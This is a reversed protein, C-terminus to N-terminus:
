RRLLLAGLVLVGIGIGGYLLWNPKKEATDPPPTFVKATGGGQTADYAAGYASPAMPDIHSANARAGESLTMGPPLALGHLTYQPVGCGMGVLQARLEPGPTAQVTIM